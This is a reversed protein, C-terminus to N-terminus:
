PYKLVEEVEDDIVYVASIHGGCVPCKDEGLIGCCVLHGCTQLLFRPTGIQCAACAPSLQAKRAEYEAMLTKAKATFLHFCLHSTDDSVFAMGIKAM